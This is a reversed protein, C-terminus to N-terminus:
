FPVQLYVTYDLGRTKYLFQLHITLLLSKDQLAPGVSTLVQLLLHAIFHIPRAAHSVKPGLQQGGCSM